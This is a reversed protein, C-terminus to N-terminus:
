KRVMLQTSVSRVIDCPQAYCGELSRKVLVALVRMEQLFYITSFEPMFWKYEKM